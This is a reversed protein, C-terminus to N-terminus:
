IHILSLIDYPDRPAHTNDDSRHAYKNFWVAIKIYEKILQSDMALEFSAAISSIHGSYDKVDAATVKSLYIFNQYDVKYEEFLTEVFEKTITKQLTKKKSSDEFVDRLGGDIERLLHALLNSKSQIRSEKLLLGDRYYIAIEPRFSKLGNYIAFERESMRRNVIDTNDIQPYADTFLIQEEQIEDQIRRMKAM